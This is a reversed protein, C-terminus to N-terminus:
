YTIIIFFFGRGHFLMRHKSSLTESVQSRYLSRNHAELISCSFGNEIADKSIHMGLNGRKGYRTLTDLM